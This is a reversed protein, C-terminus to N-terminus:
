DNNQKLKNIEELAPALISLSGCVVILQCNGSYAQIIASTIDKCSKCASTYKLCKSYLVEEDLGRPTPPKVAIIEDAAIGIHALTADVDKDKFMGIVVCKRMNAFTTTLEQCLAKAGDPNHAGDLLFTKDGVKIQQLRGKWLAREVGIKINQVTIDYGKSALYLASQIALSCNILQYKGIQRMSYIEGNYLMKQGGANSEVLTPTDCIIIDQAKNLVRMVEDSQRYTILPCNKVIHLKEEAIQSLTDGLIATHDLSVSTMIALEKSDIANTADLRGGLGCELVVFDCKRDKFYLLAAVFEVEFASPLALGQSEMKDREQAVISIYKAVDDNSMPKNDLLFRENYEFVSPSNFTGVSFGNAILINTLFCSTSGKGNTGAIHLFKLSNQPNDFRALLAKVCELGLKIGSKELNRAYEVAKEYIM